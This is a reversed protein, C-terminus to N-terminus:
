TTKQNKGFLSSKKDLNRRSPVRGDPSPPSFPSPRALKAPPETQHTGPSNQTPKLDREWLTGGLIGAGLKLIPNTEGWM